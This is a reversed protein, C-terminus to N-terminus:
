GGGSYTTGGLSLWRKHLTSYFQIMSNEIANKKGGVDTYTGNARSSPSCLMKRLPHQSLCPTPHVRVTHITPPHPPPRYVHRALPRGGTFIGRQSLSLPLM